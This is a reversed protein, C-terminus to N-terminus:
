RSEENGPPLPFFRSTTRQYEEYARGRSRIAQQETFPIGTVYNLFLYMLVLGAVTLWWWPSGYGILVYAFWHIWEFFYNPHRSYKWLGDRCVRGRNVPDRRFRDLQRDSWWEGAIATLWVIVGAVDLADLGERPALSAAVVPLAFLVAWLAQLQFFLFMVPQTWTRGLARKMAQYRGDEKEAMLRRGLHIALRVGWISIMLSLLVGRQDAQEPIAIVLGVAVIATGLAWVVDVIGASRTRVQVAWLVLMVMAAGAWALLLIDGYGNM